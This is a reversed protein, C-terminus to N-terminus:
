TIEKIASILFEINGDSGQIPSPISKIIQWNNDTLFNKVNDLALQRDAESKVIGGRGIQTPSLEFQPKVLAFIKCGKPALKLTAPLAKTLSIFSLDCTITTFENGILDSTIDKANCGEISTVRPDNAIKKHLQRHGVDISFVQAAGCELLVQTFGGTSAGLDVAVGEIKEDIIALLKQAGRSVYHANPDNIAILDDESVKTSAKTVVKGNVLVHEAAISFAAQARSPALNRSLLEKDLRNM